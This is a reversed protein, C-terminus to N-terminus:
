SLLSLQGPVRLAVAEEESNLPGYWRGRWLPSGDQFRRSDLYLQIHHGDPDKINLAWNTGNNSGIFPRRSERLRKKTATFAARDPLEFAIHAVSLSRRSPATAWEGMEELAISHHENGAALFAFRGVRETLRLGLVDHYFPLSRALSRVKIHVHGLRLTWPTAGDDARSSGVPRRRGAALHDFPLISPGSSGPISHRTSNM